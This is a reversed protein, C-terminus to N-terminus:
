AAWGTYRLKKRQVKNIPPQEFSMVLSDFHNPSEIHFKTKMTPKDWLQILGNPNPKRPIRCTQSRLVELDKMQSNISILSDPDTYVGKKVALFTNYFRDRVLWSKQARKNKFTQKMTKFNAADRGIEEYMANPDDVTQSGKYMAHAINKGYLGEKVQRALAVGMGDCDWTFLDVNAKIANDLAWDMGENVDGTKLGMVDEVYSGHRISLGKEDRGSDSPDHGAVRIGRPEWNLKLHSDVAADFWDASIIANEVSDNFRGLWIHDYLARPLRAYDNQREKELVAPFFPNDEYNMVVILHMDDEYFGDRMLETWFPNLFEISFPDASSGPNAAMWIESDEERFTPKLIRISDTSLFQAEEIFAKNFGHYSKVSEISRALGKFRFQGGKNHSIATKGVKFGPIQIRSIEDDLMALCSDEISSQYERMCITKDGYQSAFHLLLDIITTSKGSGRGGVAIKYRKKKTLFSQLKRPISFEM